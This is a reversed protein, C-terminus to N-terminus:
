IAMYWMVDGTEEIFKTTDVPKNHFKGKKILDLLEVSETVMGMVAHELRHTIAEKQYENQSESRLAKEIYEQSTM